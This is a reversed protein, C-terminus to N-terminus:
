PHPPRCDQIGERGPIVFSPILLRNPVQRSSASSRISALRSAPLTGRVRPCSGGLNSLRSISRTHSLLDLGVGELDMLM